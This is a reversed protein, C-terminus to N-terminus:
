PATASAPALDFTLPTVKADMAAITEATLDNGLNGGLVAARSFCWKAKPLEAMALHCNGLEQLKEYSTPM